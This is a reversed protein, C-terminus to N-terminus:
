PGRGTPRPTRHKGTMASGREDRYRRSTPAARAQGAVATWPRGVVGRSRRRGPRGADSSSPDEVHHAAQGPAARHRLLLRLERVAPPAIWAEGLLDVRLLQALTRADVNDNKLRASAIAKCAASHALHVDFAMEHLLEALWAWGYTAEFVVPTGPDFGVLVDGLKEVDNPVNRNFLERGDEDLAAVQTRRRHVDLGVYVVVAEKM